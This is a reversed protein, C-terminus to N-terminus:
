RPFYKSLWIYSDNQVWTGNFSVARFNPQLHNRNPVWSAVFQPSVLCLWRMHLETQYNGHLPSSIHKATEFVFLVSSDCLNNPAALHNFRLIYHTDDTELWRGKPIMRHRMDFTKSHIHASHRTIFVQCKPFCYSRTIVQYLYPLFNWAYNWRVKGPNEQLSMGSFVTSNGKLRKRLIASAVRLKMLDTQGDAHFLEARV